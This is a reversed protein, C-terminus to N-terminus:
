LPGLREVGVRDIGRLLAAVPMGLAPHHLGPAIEALPELVFAREAIGPHPIILEPLSLLLDDYLLIDIDLPRPGYRPGEVRGAGREIAKLAHLLPLPALETRGACVINYFRPQDTVLLPATDYVSSVQDIVVSARLADLAWLLHARRDGLNSGLGLYVRHTAPIEAREDPERL